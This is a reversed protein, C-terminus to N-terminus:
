QGADAPYVAAPSGVALIVSVPQQERLRAWEPGYIQAWDLELEHREVPYIAWPPHEVRFVTPRGARDRGFGWYREIFYAEDGDPAPRVAPRRGRARLVYTREGWGIRREVDIGEADETTRTELRAWSFPEGFATRAVWAVLRSPVLERVFVVGRRGGRRAYFRLNVETFSSLGPCPLGLVRVGRMEMSVLSVFARGGRLDLEVGPPLRPALLEPEVEYSAVLLREWRATLFPRPAAVRWGWRRLVFATGVLIPVNKTFPGFPHVWAQPDHISVLLPLAVLGLLQAGLLLRLWRGSLTLAGLGAMVQCAGLLALFRAPDGPVLGSGAVVELEAQQQFLLKPGLGETIWVAAVGARLLWEARPTWGEREVLWASVAVALFPINKTLVGYPHVLLGPEIAVLIATFGGVLAVQLATIRGSAPGLGVRLGLGVEGLCTAWMLWAPLGARALYDGGVERYRPHMVLVGTAVWVVMLSLRLWRADLPAPHPPAPALLGPPHTVPPM